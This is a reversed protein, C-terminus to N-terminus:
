FVKLVGVLVTTWTVLETALSISLTEQDKQANASLNQLKSIINEKTANSNRIIEINKEPIGMALAIKKASDMDYPVGKLAPIRESGYDGVGIILASRNENASNQAFSALSALCAIAIFLKKM